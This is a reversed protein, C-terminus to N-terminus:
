RAGGPNFHGAQGRTCGGLAVVVIVIVAGMVALIIKM